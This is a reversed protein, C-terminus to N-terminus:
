FLLGLAEAELPFTMGASAAVAAAQALLAVVAATDAVIAEAV